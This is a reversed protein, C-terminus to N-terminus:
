QINKYCIVSQSLSYSHGHLAYVHMHAVRTFQLAASITKDGSGVRSRMLFFPRTFWTSNRLSTCVRAVTDGLLREFFKIDFSSLFPKSLTLCKKSPLAKYNAEYGPEEGASNNCLLRPILSSQLLKWDIKCDGHDKSSKPLFWVKNVLKGPACLSLMLSYISCQGNECLFRPVSDVLLVTSPVYM